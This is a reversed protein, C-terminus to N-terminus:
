DNIGRRGRVDWGEIERGRKEERDKGDSGTEM